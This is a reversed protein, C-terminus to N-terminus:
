VLSVSWVATVMSITLYTCLSRIVPWQYIWQCYQWLWWGLLRGHNAHLRAAHPPGRWDRIQISSMRIGMLSTSASSYHAINFCVTILPLSPKYPLFFYVKFGSCYLAVSLSPPSFDTKHIDFTLLLCSKAILLTRTKRNLWSCAKTTHRYRCVTQTYVLLCFM